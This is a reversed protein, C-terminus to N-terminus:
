EIPLHKFLSHYMWVLSYQGAIIFFFNSICSVVHIFKGTVMSLSFHWHSFAVHQVTRNVDEFPFFYLAPFGIPQSPTLSQPPLYSPSSIHNYFPLLLSRQPSPVTRNQLNVIHHLDPGVYTNFNYLIVSVCMCVGETWLILLLM